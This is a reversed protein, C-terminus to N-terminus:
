SGELRAFREFAHRATPVTTRSLVPVIVRGIFWRNITLAPLAVLCIDDPGVGATQYGETLSTAVAPRPRAQFLSRKVAIAPRHLGTAPWAKSIPARNICSRPWDRSPRAELRAASWSSALVATSMETSPLGAPNIPIASVTFSPERSAM